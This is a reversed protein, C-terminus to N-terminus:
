ASADERLKARVDVDYLKELKEVAEKTAAEDRKPDPLRVSLRVHLDGAETGKRAPVGKGRLRLKQGSQSGAPIRMKVPGDLTPVEVSAGLMAEGITIPLELELHQGRRDFVPHGGVHVAILLDGTKGGNQGRAGLGALRIKQGDNVGAPINVEVNTSGEGPKEIRITRKAGRIADAFAVHMEARVDAGDQPFSTSRFPDFGRAGGGGRRGFIDGLIDGLDAETYAGGFGGGYNGGGGFGGGGFGGGQSQYARYQKAKEKDYGFKAADDGFEDYLKRKDENSLVEYASSVEKFRREADSDGPNKDPHLKRALARYAKKIEQTSASKAVGLTSYLDM